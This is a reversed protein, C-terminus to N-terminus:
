RRGSGPARQSVPKQEAVPAADNAAAPPPPLTAEPDAELIRACLLLDAKVPGYADRPAWPRAAIEVFAESMGTVELIPPPDKLLRRDAKLRESLRKMMAPVDASLPVRFVVDARRMDHFSHNIIIDGFVKGNPVVVKLNDLTALETVFLDLARVRGIRGASEIIDGVRYPRFMLIMVGAAVNSLAGQMALGIALSAAGVAAIISTTKVGLQELMAISGIIIVANRAVSAAFIRLTPDTDHRRHFRTLAQQTLKGAWGAAWVTVVLIVLAVALKIVFDGGTDVFKSWVTPDVHVAKQAAVPLDLALIPSTALM